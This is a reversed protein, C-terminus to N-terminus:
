LTELNRPLCRAWLPSAQHNRCHGEIHSEISILSALWVKSLVPTDWQQGNCALDKGVNEPVSKDNDRFSVDWLCLTVKSWFPSCCAYNKSHSLNLFLVSLLVFWKVRDKNIQWLCKVSYVPPLPFERSWGSINHIPLSLWSISEAVGCYFSMVAGKYSHYALLM